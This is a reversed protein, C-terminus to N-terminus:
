PINTYLCTCPLIVKAASLESDPLLAYSVFTVVTLIVPLANNM